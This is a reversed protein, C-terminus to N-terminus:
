ACLGARPLFLENCHHLQAGTPQPAAKHLPGPNRMSLWSHQPESHIRAAFLGLQLLLALFYPSTNNGVLPFMTGMLWISRGIEWYFVSMPWSSCTWTLGGPCDPSSCKDQSSSPSGQLLSLEPPMWCCGRTGVPAMFSIPSTRWWPVHHFSSVIHLFCWSTWITHWVKGSCAAPQGRLSHLRWGQLIESALQDCGQAAQDPGAALLFNLGSTSGVQVMRCNSVVCCGTSSIGLGRKVFQEERRWIIWM